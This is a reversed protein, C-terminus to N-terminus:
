SQVAKFVIVYTFDAGDVQWAYCGQSRVYTGGPLQRYGDLGENVTPGPPFVLHGLFPNEGFGVPGDGDIRAGRILAPGSYSPVAFWLTKFGYWGAPWPALENVSGQVLPEVPGTGLAVGGFDETLVHHSATTPCDQGAGVKPLRLPRLLSAPVSQSCM